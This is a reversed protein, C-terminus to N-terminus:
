RLVQVSRSAASSAAAIDAGHGAVRLRIEYGPRAHRRTVEFYFDLAGPPSRRCRCTWCGRGRQREGAVGRGGPRDVAAAAGLGLRLQVAAQAAAGAARALGQTRGRAPRGALEDIAVFRVLLVNRGAALKGAVDFRHPRHANAMRGLYKGNLWVDAPGDVGAFCLETPTASKPHWRGGRSTEERSPMDQSCDAPDFELRYWWDLGSVWYCQRANTDYHPNPMRGAAVLAANVDGPVLCGLWDPCDPSHPVIREPPADQPKTSAIRWGSTLEIRKMRGIYRSARLRVVPM